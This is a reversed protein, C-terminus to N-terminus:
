SASPIPEAPRGSVEAATPRIIDSSAGSGSGPMMQDLVDKSGFPLMGQEYAWYGLAGVAVGFLFRMMGGEVPLAHAM